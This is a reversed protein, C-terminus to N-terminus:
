HSTALTDLLMQRVAPAAAQAGYGSNPFLACAVVRAGDPAGAPAYGVFWADTEKVDNAKGATDALEATGTKGAVSVGPIQSPTGTGYRVVAEMMQQVEGAIRPNTVAVFRPAAGALLTPIPRRGGDAITAGADAMELTSALVRGQGIASSGVAVADGITSPPPITSELAEPIGPVPQDFGFRVAEAVLRRAGLEAGLPAFTTDCSVAFANLLTGGCVEGAANQLVYGDLDVKSLEPFETDLTALGDQLVATATIIKMTSGPPQTDTFAIGALALLSGDRPDMVTIGGYRGGLAQIADAELAPDITTRVTRGNGPAVRALIRRGARLTGGIRGRLRTQFIAELGDQPVLARPPYGLAQYRKRAARPIPALTGVVEQAVAPIPSYRYPGTALPVGNDALITGRTGLVTHRTLREGSRLGPFALTSGWEIGSGTPSIPVLLTERLSGFVRTRITMRVPVFRGNQGHVLRVRMSVATATRWGADVAATFAAESTRRRSRASLLLYASGLQRRAYLRAFRGALAQEVGGSGAAV